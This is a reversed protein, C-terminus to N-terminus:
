IRCPFTSHNLYTRFSRLIGSLGLGASSRSELAVIAQSASTGAVSALGSVMVAYFQPESLGKLYPRVVLPAETQGVFVNGCASLSESGSTGLLRAMVVETTGYGVSLNEALDKAIQYRKDEQQMKRLKEDRALELRAREAPDGILAGCFSAGDPPGRLGHRRLGTRRYVLANDPETHFHM